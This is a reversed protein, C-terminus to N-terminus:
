SKQDKQLNGVDSRRVRVLGPPPGVRVHPVAGKKIWQYVTDRHVNCIQAVESVKLLDRDSLDGSRVMRDELESIM